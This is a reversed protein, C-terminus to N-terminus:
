QRKGKSKRKFRKGFVLPLPQCNLEAAGTAETLVVTRPNSFLVRQECPRPKPVFLLSGPQEDNGGLLRASPASFGAFSLLIEM